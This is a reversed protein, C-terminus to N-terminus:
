DWDWDRDLAAVLDAPVVATRTFPMAGGFAGQFILM